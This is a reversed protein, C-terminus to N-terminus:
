PATGENDNSILDDYRIGSSELAEIASSLDRQPAAKPTPLARRYDISATIKRDLSIVARDLDRLADLIRDSEVPQRSKDAAARGLVAALPGALPRAFGALTEAWTGAALEDAGFQLAARNTISKLANTARVKAEAGDVGRARDVAVLEGAVICLDAVAESIAAVSALATRGSPHPEEALRAAVPGTVALVEAGLDFDAGLVLPLHNRRRDRQQAASYKIPKPDPLPRRPKIFGKLAM